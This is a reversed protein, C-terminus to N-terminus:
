GRRSPGLTTLRMVSIVFAKPLSVICLLPNPIKFILDGEKVEQLIYLGKKGGDKAKISIPVQCEVRLPTKTEYPAPPTSSDDGPSTSNATTAPRSRQAALRPNIITVGGSPGHDIVIMGFMDEMGALPTGDLPSPPSM